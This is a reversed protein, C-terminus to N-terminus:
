FDASISAQGMYGGGAFFKKVVGIMQQHVFYLTLSLNAVWAPAHVIKASYSRESFSITIAIAFMFILIFDLYTHAWLQMSIVPFIYCIMELSTLALVGIKTFEVRKVQQSIKWCTCGLSIGAVARLNGVYVWGIWISAASINSRTQSIYGYLFLTLLPAIVCTFTDKYKRLMPYLGLMALLMSSIYWASGIPDSTAKFGAMNYRFLYPISYVLNKIADHFSVNNLAQNLIFTFLYAVLYFPLLVKIKRWVFRITEIGLSEVPEKVKNGSAAMLFGSVIFFFEVAVYGGGFCEVLQWNYTGPMLYNAHVLVIVFAYVLKAWDVIATRKLM